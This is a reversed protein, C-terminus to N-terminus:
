EITIYAIQDPINFSIPSVKNGSEWNKLFKTINDPLDFFRSEDSSLMAKEGNTFWSGFDTQQNLAIAVPDFHALHFRKEKDILLNAAEIVNKTIKIVM